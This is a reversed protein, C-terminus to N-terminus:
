ILVTDGLTFLILASNWNLVCVCVAEVRNCARDLLKVYKYVHELYTM